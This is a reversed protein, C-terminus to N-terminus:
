LAMNNLCRTDEQKFYYSEAIQPHPSPTSHLVRPPSISGVSGDHQRAEPILSSSAPRKRSTSPTDM